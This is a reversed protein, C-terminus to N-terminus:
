MRSITGVIPSTAAITNPLASETARAAAAREQNPATQPSRRATVVFEPLVGVSETGAAKRATVVFEPLVGVSETGAVKRATVVFEPLVGVSEDSPASRTELNALAATTLAAFSALILLTKM